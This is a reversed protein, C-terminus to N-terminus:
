HKSEIWTKLEKTKDILERCFEETLSNALEQKYSPYRCEINMPMLDAILKLQEQSMKTVLGCSNALKLLNHIYPIEDDKVASWHSKISKEIVQHCMFGVYLWRGGKYMVEATELDYDALDKWYAIKDIAM